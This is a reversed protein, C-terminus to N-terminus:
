YVIRALRGVLTVQKGRTLAASHAMGGSISVYPDDVPPGVPRPEVQNNDDCKYGLRGNAACGWSYM